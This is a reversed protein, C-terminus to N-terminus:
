EEPCAIQRYGMLGGHRTGGGTWIRRGLLTAASEPNACIPLVRKMYVPFTGLDSLFGLVVLRSGLRSAPSNRDADPKGPMNLRCHHIPIRSPVPCFCVRANDSGAPLMGNTQAATRVVAQNEVFLAHVYRRDAATLYDGARGM